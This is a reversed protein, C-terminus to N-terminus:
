INYYQINFIYTVNDFNIYIDILIIQWFNIYLSYFYRLDLGNKGEKLFARRKNLAM